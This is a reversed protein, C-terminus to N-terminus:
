ENHGRNGSIPGFSLIRSRSTSALPRAREDLCVGPIWIPGLLDCVIPLRARCALTLKAESLVDSVKRRHAFGLPRIDDGSEAARFYLPGKLSTPEITTSLSARVPATESVGEESCIRWGFEDSETEGPHVLPYRYPQVPNLTRLHVIESTWEIVTVGRECTVSGVPETAIGAMLTSLQHHDLSGGLAEVGLRMSRRCLVPPLHRLAARDFAIELDRTLFELEGNLVINARELSAAAMGNLFHDEERALNSLRVIAEDAQTNLKRLEPLVNKRVRVRSFQIDSNSPDDHTWLGLDDCYSRTEERSFPLLPRVINERQAPIGGLGTLGTGRAIRMIVTEVHDDRTHATAVLDCQTEFAASRFFSYRAERGAEEVGIKLERCMRPIDARGSVFTAGIETAFAECLRLELDAEPRQGHHLHAAVVDVGLRKLLDLLCTSDAGGSYGVLVRAGQTILGSDELHERFRDLM